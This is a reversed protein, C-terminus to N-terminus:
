GCLIRLRAGGGAIASLTSRILHTAHVANASTQRRRAQAFYRDRVLSAGLVLVVERDTSQRSLLSHLRHWIQEGTLGAWAGRARRRRQNVRGEQAAGDWPG